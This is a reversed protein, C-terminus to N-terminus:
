YRWRFESRVLQDAWKDGTLAFATGVGFDITNCIVARLGPGMSFIGTWASLGVPSGGILLNPSTYNGGLITWENFEFTGILMSNCGCRCLVRNFSLHSHWVNAQYIPDGAIPIWYATQGQFYLDQALKVSTLFSPELSVHATGLGQTFNGVPIFTQFQFTLQMLECDMLLTKTGILLDAFGSTPCLTGTNIPAPSPDIERYFYQMFVSFNNVAGETYLSLDEYDIKRAIGAIGKGQQNPRPCGQGVVQIPNTNFRPMFYEARDPATMGFGADYRWRMQTVPRVSDVFFAANAAHVYHPEYCPDPCCLCEILGNWCKGFFGCSDAGCDCPRRGAYCCSPCGGPIYGDEYLTQLPRSGCGGGCGGGGCTSCGVPVIGGNPADPVTTAILEAAAASPPSAQQAAARDSTWAVAVMALGAVWSLVKGDRAPMLKGRM